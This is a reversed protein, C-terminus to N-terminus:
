RGTHGPGVKTEEGTGEFVKSLDISMNKLVNIKITNKETYTKSRGFTGEPEMLFVDVMQGEPWVLWYEKVGAMEYLNYKELKDRRQSGPSVIEIVFDPAGICGNEDLKKPDCIVSLDPQVVNGIDEERENGMPLRVDFPALYVDCPKGSLLTRLHFYLNGLIIQHIRKPAPSMNYALGDIIEWREGDDWKLYDGYTFKQIEKKAALGM